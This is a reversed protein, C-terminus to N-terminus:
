GCGRSSAGSGTLSGGLLPNSAPAEFTVSGMAGTPKRQEQRLFNAM